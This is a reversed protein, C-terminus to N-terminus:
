GNLKKKWNEKHQEKQYTVKDSTTVHDASWLAQQGVASMQQGNDVIIMESVENEHLELMCRLICAGYVHSETQERM